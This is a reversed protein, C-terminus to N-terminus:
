RVFEIPGEDAVTGHLLVKLGDPFRRRPWLLVYHDTPYSYSAYGTIVGPSFKDEFYDYAPPGVVSISIPPKLGPDVGAAAMLRLDLGPFLHWMNFFRLVKTDEIEEIDWTGKDVRAVVSGACTIVQSYTSAAQISLEDICNVAYADVGPPELGLFPLNGAAVVYNAHWRGTVTSVTLPGFGFLSNWFVIISVCAVILALGVLLVVRSMYWKTPLQNKM